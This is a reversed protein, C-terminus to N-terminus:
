GGNIGEKDNGKRGWGGKEKEENGRGAGEEVDGVGVSKKEM